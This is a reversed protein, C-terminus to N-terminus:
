SCVEIGMLNLIYTSFSSYGSATETLTDDSDLYRRFVYTAPTGSTTARSFRNASVGTFWVAVMYHSSSNLTFAIEDSVIDASDVLKSGSGGDFTVVTPASTFNANFSGNHPGISVAGVTYSYISVADFTLRIYDGSNSLRDSTFVFRLNYYPGLGIITNATYEGWTNVWSGACGAGGGGVARERELNGISATIIRGM